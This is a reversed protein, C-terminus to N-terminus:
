HKRTRMSWVHEIFNLDPSKALRKLTYLKISESRETTCKRKSCMRQRGGIDECRGFGHEYDEVLKKRACRLLLARRNYKRNRM